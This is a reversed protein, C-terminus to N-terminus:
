ASPMNPTAGAQSCVFAAVECARRNIEDTTKGDLLGLIMSATYADGAGVTDVVDVPTALCDSVAGDRLILAGDAGRTLAVVQLDCAAALEALLEADSKGSGTLNYIKTLLPLEEDNLKLVDAIELSQRILSESYFPSRINVDFVRLCNPKTSRVFRQITAYSVDSRQGLTGFCVVDTEAALKELGDNWALYDWATDAAFRYSATGTDDLAVLVQGTPNSLRDIADTRVNKDRLTTIAREGLEDIGVASVMSVVARDGVLGACSCAFNAPAGGFRPGTPFVDWLVEGIATIHRVGEDSFDSSDTRPATTM